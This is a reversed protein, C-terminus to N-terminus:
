AATKAKKSPSEPAKEGGIVQPKLRRKPYGEWNHVERVRGLQM